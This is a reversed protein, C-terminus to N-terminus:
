PASLQFAIWGSRMKRAGAHQKDGDWVAFAIYGRKGVELEGLAAGGALPRAITVQWRGDKWRGVGRATQESSPTTDGFGEATLVQVPAAGARVLIPNGAAKAPAYRLEMEARAAGGAEYPYHDSTANPYLAAIRDGGGAAARQQDDQWLAKWYWIRVGKGAQGMAPDPVDASQVLPFQIAAADSNKGSHPILDQTADDWELRFVVWERNHLARVKVLSVGPELLRPEAIDQVMMKAPHESAQDWLKASPDEFPLAATVYKAAVQQTDVQPRRACGALAILGVAILAIRWKM